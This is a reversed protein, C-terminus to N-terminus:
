FTAAPVLPTEICMSEPGILGFLHEFVQEAIILDFQETLASERTDFDPYHASRYTKFQEICCGTSM